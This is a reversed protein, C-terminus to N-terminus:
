RTITSLGGPPPCPISEFDDFDNGNANGSDPKGDGPTVRHLGTSYHDGGQNLILGLGRYAAGGTNKAVELAYYVIVLAGDSRKGCWDPPQGDFFANLVTYWTATKLAATYASRPHSAIHDPPDPVGPLPPPQVITGPDRIWRFQEVATNAVLASGAILVVATVVRKIRAADWIYKVAVIDDFPVPTLVVVGALVDKETIEVVKGNYDRCITYGDVSTSEWPCNEGLLENLWPILKQTYEEPLDERPENSVLVREWEKLNDVPEPAESSSFTEDQTEDQQPEIAQANNGSCASVMLMALVLLVIVIRDKTRM